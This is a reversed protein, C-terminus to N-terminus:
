LFYHDFIQINTVMCLLLHWWNQITPSINVTFYFNLEVLRLLLLCHCKICWHGQYSNERERERKTVSLKFCDIDRLIILIWYSPLGRLKCMGLPLRTWNRTQCHLQFWRFVGSLKLGAMPICIIDFFCLVMRSLPV